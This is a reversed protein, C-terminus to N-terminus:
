TRQAIGFEPRATGGHTMQANGDDAHDGRSGRAVGGRLTWDGYGCLKEAGRRLM